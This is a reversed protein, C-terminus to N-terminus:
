SFSQKSFERSYSFYQDDIFDNDDQASSQQISSSDFLFKGFSYDSNSEDIQQDCQIALFNSPSYDKEESTNTMDSQNMSQTKFNQQIIQPLDKICISHSKFFAYKNDKQYHKLNQSQYVNHTESVQESLIENNIQQAGEQFKEFGLIVNKRQHVQDSNLRISSEKEPSNTHKKSIHKFNGISSFRMECKSCKFPKEGTHCREHVVLNAKEAFIKMCSQHPCQYLIELYHKTKKHLDLKSPRSFSKSCGDLDCKFHNRQFQRKSQLCIKGILSKM